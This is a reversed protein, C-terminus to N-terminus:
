AKAEAEAAAPAADAAAPAADAADAADAAGDADAVPSMPRDEKSLGKAILADLRMSEKILSDFRFHINPMYRMKLRAALTSRVFGKAKDLAKMAEKVQEDNDNLFSVYITANRLDPSVSVETVTALSVRPDKIDKALVQAVERLISAGIRENRGYSKPM